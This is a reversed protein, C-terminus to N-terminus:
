RNLYEQYRNEFEAESDFDPEKDAGTEALNENVAKEVLDYWEEYTLKTYPRENEDYEPATYIAYALLGLSIAIVIIIIILKM